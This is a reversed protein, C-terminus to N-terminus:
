LTGDDYNYMPQQYQRPQQYQQPTQYYQMMQDHLQKNQAQNQAQLGSQKYMGAGSNALNLGANLMAGYMMQESGASNAKAMQNQAAGMAAAFDRDIEAGRIAQLNGFQGAQQHLVGHKLQTDQGLNARAQGMQQLAQTYAGPLQANLARGQATNAMNRAYAQQAASRLQAEPIQSQATGMVGQAGQLARAYANQMDAGANRAMATRNSMEGLQAQQYENEAEAGFRSRINGEETQRGQYNTVAARM